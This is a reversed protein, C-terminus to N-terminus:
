RHAMRALALCAGRATKLGERAREIRVRVSRDLPSRMAEVRWETGGNVRRAKSSGHVRAFCVRRDTAPSAAAGTAKGDEDLNWRHADLRRRRHNQPCIHM